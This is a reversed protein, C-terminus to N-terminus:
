IASSRTLRRIQAKFVAFGIAAIALFGGVIAYVAGLGVAKTLPGTVIPSLFQGLFMATSLGGLARGRVAEPVAASLWVTMNPILIGLGMGSIALGTLVQTWNASQGILLYGIGMLGFILPLFTVFEMRQKFKAYTLSAIASFLTCIAIAMGSQSPSAQVLTELFFPLQVPIMYFAVQSLTTLGYVIGLVGVPMSKPPAEANPAEVGPISADTRNPELIFVLILPVILWAFLYIVFPYRWNQQALIGGFTLFLVGGLGMFGAQLGMFAARAPGRYYDAILTTATVMVGAVALGLVARGALIATLSDLFLGSSGALGYLLTAILLLPKRGFRDVILGAIPSGIVIFLAPLTIILKVLSTRTDVDAIASEFYQKMAPLAPSVTAGAMVTLSSALLLTM